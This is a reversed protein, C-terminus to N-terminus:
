IVFHYLRNYCCVAPDEKAMVYCVQIREDMCVWCQNQVFTKAKLKVSETFSGSVVSSSRSMTRPRPYPEVIGEDWIVRPSSSSAM